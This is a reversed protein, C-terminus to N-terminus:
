AIVEDARALLQPPITHGLAKATTQNVILEFKTPQQIPLDAPSAGKFIKDVYLAAQRWSDATPHGYSMLGGNTVFVRYAYIAPLRYRAALLIIPSRNATTFSDPSVILGGNPDTALRALIRDVEALDHIPSEILEVGLAPAKDAISQVFKKAYPGAEPHYIFGVRTIDPAIEKLLELWKGSIGFEFATFGTINGGPHALSSVFGQGAPDGVTVFVIPITATEKSVATLPLTGNVLITDPASKVLETAFTTALGADGGAWQSEFRVNHGETWGLEALTKALLAIHAQGELDGQRFLMLMGVTGCAAM